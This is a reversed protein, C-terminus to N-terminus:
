NLLVPLYLTFMTSTKPPHIMSNAVGFVFHSWIGFFTMVCLSGLQKDPHMPYASSLFYVQEWDAVTFTLSKM